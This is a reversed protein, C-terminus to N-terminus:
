QGSSVYKCYSYDLKYILWKIMYHIDDRGLKQRLIKRIYTYSGKRKM